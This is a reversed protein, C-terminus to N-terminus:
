CKENNGRWYFASVYMKVCSSKSVGETKALFNKRGETTGLAGM